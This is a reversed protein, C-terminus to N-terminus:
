PRKDDPPTFDRALGAMLTRADRRGRTWAGSLVHRLLYAASRRYRTALRRPDHALRWAWEMGIAQVVRPARVQAGALFDLAAGVCVYTIGETRAAALDAFLEQKPAGLAVFCIRAGSAAIREVAGDATPGCPLFGFPPSERGAVILGPIEGMLRRATRDLIEASTGFFHVPHGREAAARCLPVVIDAGTVRDIEAGAARAMWVVPAGDATVYRAREYAARFTPDDRLKVLHDLNLTFVTGGAGASADAVIRRILGSEDAVNLVTEDVRVIADSRIPGSRRQINTTPLSSSHLTPDLKMSLPDAPSSDQRSM